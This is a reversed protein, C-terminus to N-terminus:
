PFPVLTGLLRKSELTVPSCFIGLHVATTAISYICLPIEPIPDEVYFNPQKCHSALYKVAMSTLSLTWFAAADLSFLFNSVITL